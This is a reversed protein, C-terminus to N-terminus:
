GRAGVRGVRGQAGDDADLGAGEIPLGDGDADEGRGGDEADDGDYVDLVGQGPLAADTPPKMGTILIM